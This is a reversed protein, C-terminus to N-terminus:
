QIVGLRYLYGLTWILSRPVKIQMGKGKYLQM